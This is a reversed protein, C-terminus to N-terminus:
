EAAAPDEAPPVAPQSNMSAGPPMTYVQINMRAEVQNIQDCVVEDGTAEVYRVIQFEVDAAVVDPWPSGWCRALRFVEPKVRSHGPARRLIHLQRQNSLVEQVGAMM